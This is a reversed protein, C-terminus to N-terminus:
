ARLKDHEPIMTELHYTFRHFDCRFGLMRAIVRVQADALETEGPEDPKAISAATLVSRVMGPPVPVGGSFRETQRSYLIVRYERM